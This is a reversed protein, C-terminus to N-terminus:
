LLKRLPTKPSTEDLFLNKPGDNGDIEVGLMESFEREYLKAGPFRGTITKIKPSGRPLMVRLTISSEGEVFHYLAEIKKGNDVGSITSVREVGNHLLEVLARDIDEFSIDFIKFNKGEKSLSGLKSYDMIDRM